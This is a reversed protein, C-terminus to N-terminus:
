RHIVKELGCTLCKRTMHRMPLMSGPELVERTDFVKLLKPSMFFVQWSLFFEYKYEEPKENWYKRPVPRMISVAWPYKVAPRTASPNSTGFLKSVEYLEVTLRRISVHIESFDQAIGYIDIGYHGHLRFFQKAELPMDEWNQSDFYLSLEDCMIDVDRLKILDEINHWYGILGKYKAETEASLKINLYVQRSIGTKKRYRKNRNLLHLAMDALRATKGARPKGTYAIIM